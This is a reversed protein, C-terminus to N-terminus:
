DEMLTVETNSLGYLQYVIRNIENELAKCKREAVVLAAGTADAEHRKALLLLDVAKVLEDHLSRDLKDDMDIRRIPLKSISNWFYEYLGGSKLKGISRFRFTLVNSNLLGLIYRLDEPQGGDFLVTTDTLGLFDGLEDMAFRNEKAMYPCLLKPQGKAYREAHLPWTYHWWECDGRKFAARGRLKLSNRKLHDRVSEPLDHFSAVANPYILYEGRDLIRYRQIDSNSARKYYASASVNWAAIEDRTRGGFVENAGTQMGQGIHLVSGLADGAADIKANLAAIAPPVLEWSGAGLSGQPVVLAEFQSADALADSLPSGPPDDIRHKRVDVGGPTGGVEL